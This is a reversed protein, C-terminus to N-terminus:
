TIHGMYYPTDLGMAWNPIKGVIFQACFRFFGLISQGVQSDSVFIFFFTKELNFTFSFATILITGKGHSFLCKRLSINVPQHFVFSRLFTIILALFWFCFVDAVKGQRWFMLYSLCWLGTENRFELLTNGFPNSLLRYTIIIARSVLRIIICVTNQIGAAVSLARVKSVGVM